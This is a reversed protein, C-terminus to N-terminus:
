QFGMAFPMKGKATSKQSDAYQNGSNYGHESYLGAPMAFRVCDPAGRACASNFGKRFNRNRILGSTEQQWRSDWWGSAHESFIGELIADM